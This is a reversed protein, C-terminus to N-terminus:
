ITVWIAAADFVAVIAVVEFHQRNAFSFAAAAAAALAAPAGPAAFGAAAAVDDCSKRLIGTM